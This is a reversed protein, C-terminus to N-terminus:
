SRVQNVLDALSRAGGGLPLTAVVGAEQDGPLATALGQEILHATAQEVLERGPAVLRLAACLSHDIANATVSLVSRDVDLGAAARLLAGISQEDDVTVSVVGHCATSTTWAEPRTECDPGPDGVDCLLGAIEAPGAPRLPVGSRAARAVTRAAIAALANRAGAAGEGRVAVTEPAWAPEHRIVLLVRNWLPIGDVPLGRYTRSPGFAPNPVARATGRQEVLLQVAAPRAPDDTLVQVAEAFSWTRPATVAATLVVAFGQGDGVVGLPPGGRTALEAVHLGPLLRAAAGLDLGAPEASESGDPAIPEAAVPDRLREAALDVLGRGRRRALGAVGVIFAAGAVVYGTVNQVVLGTVIVALAVEVFVVTGRRPRRWGRRAM